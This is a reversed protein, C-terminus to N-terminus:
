LNSNGIPTTRARAYIRKTLAHCAELIIKTQKIKFTTAVMKGLGILLPRNERSAPQRNLLDNPYGVTAHRTGPM